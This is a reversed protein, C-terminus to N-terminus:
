PRYVLTFNVVVNPNISPLGAVERLQEVGGALGFSGAGVLLPEATHVQLAGDALATVLLNAALTQEMGHLSVKAEVKQPLVSGAELASLAGADVSLAVTAAPFREVEFVLERMRQDRIEINTAVSALDIELRAEGADSISGSLGTFRNVESVAAAKSTVYHFSSAAGDLTWDAQAPVAVLSGVALSLLSLVPIQSKSRCSSM